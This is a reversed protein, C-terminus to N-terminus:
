RRGCGRKQMRQMQWSITHYNRDWQSENDESKTATNEKQSQNQKKIINEKWKRVKDNDEINLSKDYCEIAKQNEGFNGLHLM